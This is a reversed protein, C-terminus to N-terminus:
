DLDTLEAILGERMRTLDSALGIGAAQRMSAAHKLLDSALLGWGAADRWPDGAIRFELSGDRRIDIEVLRRVSSPEVTSPKVNLHFM